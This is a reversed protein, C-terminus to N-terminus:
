NSAHKSSGQKMVSVTAGPGHIYEVWLKMQDPVKTSESADAGAKRFEASPGGIYQVIRECTAQASGGLPQASEKVSKLDKSETPSSQVCTAQRSVLLVRDVGRQGRSSPRPQHVGPYYVPVMATTLSAMKMGCNVPWSRVLLPDTKHEETEPGNGAIPDGKSSM